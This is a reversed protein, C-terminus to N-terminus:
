AALGLGRCIDVAMDDWTYARLNESLRLALARYGGIDRRWARLRQALHSADGSRTVLMKDLEKPFREAIGSVDSAFAPIGSCIAEQVALGYPEYRAPAILADCARLIRPVDKRFGLFRVRSRLPSRAVRASWHHLEPGSGIAVLDVDWSPDRCLESWADIAVDFGKRRNGLGGVFAALPSELAWGLQRRMTCKEQASTPVFVEPDIGLYVTKVREEPINLRTILEHKTRASNALVLRAGSVARRERALFVAHTLRSKVRPILRSETDPSYASHVYHVWNVDPWCCNGGNVVVRGGYSTVKKAWWRGVVGLPFESLFDSDLLRPVRHFRVNRAKVLDKSVFHAVLHTEIGMGAFQRALAYNARDMGGTKIINAAVILAQM